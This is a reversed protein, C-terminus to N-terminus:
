CRSQRRQLGSPAASRRSGWAGSTRAKVVQTPSSYRKTATNQIPPSKSFIRNGVVEAGIMGLEVTYNGNQQILEFRAREFYQTLRGTSAANYEETIPYGFIPLNGNTEWFYRFAGRLTHGTEPFTRVDGQARAHGSFPLITSILLFALLWRWPLHTFSYRLRQMANIEPLREPEGWPYSNPRLSIRGIRPSPM